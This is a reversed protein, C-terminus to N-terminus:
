LMHKVCRQKSGGSKNCKKTHLGSLVVHSCQLVDGVPTLKCIPIPYKQQALTNSSSNASIMVTHTHSSKLMSCVHHGGRYHTQQHVLILAVGM